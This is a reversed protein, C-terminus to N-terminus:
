LRRGVLKRWGDSARIRAASWGNFRKTADVRVDPNMSAWDDLHGLLLHHDPSGGGEGCLTILNREDLELDPRGLVICVHFPIIHHVDVPAGESKCAVCKPERVLHARQVAPWKPSREIGHQAAIRAGHDHSDRQLRCADAVQRSGIALKM